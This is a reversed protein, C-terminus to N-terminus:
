YLKLRALDDPRENTPRFVLCTISGSPVQTLGADIVSVCWLNSYKSRGYKNYLAMFSDRDAKLTIKRHMQSQYEKWEDYHHTIMYETVESMGHCAQAVAKGKGMSLSSDIVIYVHM